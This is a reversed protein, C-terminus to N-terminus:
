RQEWLRLIELVEDCSLADLHALSNRAKYLMNFTRQEEKSQFGNTKFYYYWMHRLEMDEPECLEKEFEDLQPLVALLRDYYTKIYYKRMREVIPFVVHIQAEWVISDVLRPKNTWQKATEYDDSLRQCLTLPCDLLERTALAECLEPDTGTLRSAIQTIYHREPDSLGLQDAVCNSAFLQIDYKSIYSNWKFVSVGKRASTLPTSGRYTLIILGGSMPCHRAYEVSFDLWDQREEIQRIILVRGELVQNKAIFAARSGDMPHYDAHPAYRNMIVTSLEQGETWDDAFGKEFLLNSDSQMLAEEYMQLYSEPYPAEEILLVRYQMNASITDHM